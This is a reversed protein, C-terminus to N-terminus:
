RERHLFALAIWAELHARATEFDEDDVYKAEQGSSLTKKLQSISIM